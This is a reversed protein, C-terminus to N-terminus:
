SIDQWKNLSFKGKTGSIFGKCLMQGTASSGVDVTDADKIDYRSGVDTTSLTNTVNAEIQASPEIPVEVAVSSTENYKESNKDVNEAILGAVSTSVKTANTLVGSSLLVLNGDTFTVGTSAPLSVMKTKGKIFRM